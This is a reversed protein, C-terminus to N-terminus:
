GITAPVIKAFLSYMTLAKRGPPNYRPKFEQVMCLFGESGVTDLLHMDKAIYYCVADTLKKWRANNHPLLTHAAFSDKLQRQSPNSAKSSTEKLNSGKISQQMMTTFDKAHNSQLHTILNMTSRTYVFEKKCVKCIVEKRKKKDKEIFQGDKALFRFFGWIVSKSGPLPLLKRESDAM